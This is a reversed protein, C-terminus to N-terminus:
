CKICKWNQEGVALGGLAYGDFGIDLLGNLSHTRLDTHTGGQIIGFLSNPNQLRDFEERSRKAWRLSLEVSKATEEKTATHTICEDFIMVVDSGLTTQIQMSTEPSLFVKDGNVPSRFFVGDELLKM